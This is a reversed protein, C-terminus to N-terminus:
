VKGQEYAEVLAWATQEIGQEYLVHEATGREFDIPFRVHMLEHVFTQEPDDADDAVKIGAWMLKPQASCIGEFGENIDKRAVSKVEIKWDRLHLRPQWDALYKELQQQTIM